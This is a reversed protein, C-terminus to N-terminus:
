MAKYLLSQRVQAEKGIIDADNEKRDLGVGIVGMFELGQLNEVTDVVIRVTNQLTTLGITNLARTFRIKKGSLRCNDEFKYEVVSDQLGNSLLMTRFSEDPVAIAIYSDLDLESEFSDLMDIIAETTKWVYMQEITSLFLIKAFADWRHPKEFLYTQINPHSEEQQVNDNEHQENSGVSEVRKLMCNCFDTGLSASDPLHTEDTLVKVDFEFSLKPMLQLEKLCTVDGNLQNCDMLALIGCNGNSVAVENIFELVLLAFMHRNKNKLHQSHCLICHFEDVIVLQFKDLLEQTISQCHTTGFVHTHAKVHIQFVQLSSRGCSCMDWFSSELSPCSFYLRDAIIRSVSQSSHLKATMRTYIWKFASHCLANTPAIYLVKKSSEDLLLSLASHLAMLTKGTAPKGSLLVKSSKDFYWQKFISIQQKNMVTNEDISLAHQVISDTFSTTNLWEQCSVSYDLNPDKTTHTTDEEEEQQQQEPISELSVDDDLIQDGEEAFSIDDDLKLSHLFSEKMNSSKVKDEKMNQIQQQQSETDINDDAESEVLDKDDLQEENFICDDHKEKGDQVEEELFTEKLDMSSNILSEEDDLESQPNSNM